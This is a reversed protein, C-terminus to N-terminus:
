RVSKAWLLASCCGGGVVTVVTFLLVHVGFVPPASLLEGCHYADGSHHNTSRPNGVRNKRPHCALSLLFAPSAARSLAICVPRLTAFICSALRMLLSPM